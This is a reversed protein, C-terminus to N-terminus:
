RDARVPDEEHVAAPHEGLYSRELLHQSAALESAAVDLVLRGKELVLARDAIELVARVHQEVVVMAIDHEDAAARVAALLRAAVAPALGQSLEDILLLRPAPALARAVAVMQQEGGSLLGCRRNRLRDLEPFVDFPRITTRQLLALSEGVTLSALLARDDPVMGVGRRVIRNPARGVLGVGNLDITGHEARLRGILTLLLTTKGAGNAGLMAVVEGRGVGFTVDRVVTARGYGSRLSDVQL